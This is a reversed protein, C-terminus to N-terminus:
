NIAGKVYKTVDTVSSSKGCGENDVVLYTIRTEEGDVQIEHGRSDYSQSLPEGNAEMNVSTAM